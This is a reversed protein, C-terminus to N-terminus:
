PYNLQRTRRIEFGLKIPNNWELTRIQQVNSRPSGEECVKKFNLVSERTGGVVVVVNGNSLNRTYGHLNHKIAQKRIWKRYSVGQVKGSVIYRKTYFDEKPVNPLVIEAALNNMLLSRIERYDFYLVEKGKSHGKTEPFYYDIIKEPVNRPEGSSPFLHMCIDATANVEVVTANKGDFIVDVGAHHLNPISNVAKIAVQKVIGNIKDTFDIPDGGASINSQGKLFVLENTSPVSDLSLSSRKLNKVVEDDVSIPKNSLYPNESRLKNKEEILAVITSTGDGVVNAPVRKTAAVVTNDVVYVRYEEGTFHEEILFDNYKESQLAKSIEKRLEKADKINTVVEKGLSGTTPKLVLPYNLSESEKILDEIDSDKKFKIWKPTPVEAKEFYEKAESKDQVIDVAENSVKDGRSRYFYHIKDTEKSFLSFSKGLPNYGILKLDTRKSPDLYWTLTLGRRWGELAMVYSDLNFSRAGKIMQKTLWNPFIKGM